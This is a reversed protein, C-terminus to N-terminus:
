VRPLYDSSRAHDYEEAVIELLGPANALQTGVKVNTNFVNQPDIIHKIEEFVQVMEQSYESAALPSRLRGEGYKAAVSGGFKLVMEYYSETFKKVKQRDSLRRLDLFPYVQFINDGAHGWMATTIRQKKALDYVGEIYKEFAERPVSADETMPLPVRGDIEGNIVAAQVSFFVQWWDAQEDLDSSLQVYHGAKQFAKAAKKAKRAQKRGPDDFEVFLLAAPTKAGEELVASINLGQGQVLDLTQRELFEVSSPALQQLSDLADHADALSEFSITLLQSQPIYSTLKVIMETIIGLTGQAGVFLPTLDFSGNKQKVEALGSYGANTYSARAVIEDEILQQNDTILGDIKRYIEGELTALGKKKSLERKSIRGTQIVEGNALVVELQNVWKRMDSYKVSKRTMSNNAIAGGVTSYLSTAPMIPMYLGHTKMAEQFVNFNVGPQLRALQQKTDLELIKNFHAPTSLTIGTGIAAGTNSSGSGRPTIPLAHGKQALQWAFRTVKRIDNVGYPYVILSPTQTLISGDRSFHQRVAATTVVEGQLHEQLYSAIKSM